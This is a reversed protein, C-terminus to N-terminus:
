PLDRIKGWRCEHVEKIRVLLYNKWMGQEKYTQLFAMPISNKELITKRREYDPRGAGCVEVYLGLKPLYFNPYWTRTLEQEDNVSM